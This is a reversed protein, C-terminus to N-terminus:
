CPGIGLKGYELKGKSVGILVKAAHELVMNNISKAIRGATRFEEAAESLKRQQTFIHGLMYHGRAEGETFGLSECIQLYRKTCLRSAGLKRRRLLLYALNGVAVSQYEPRRMYTACKLAKRHSRAAEIWNGLAAHLIGANTYAMYKGELDALHAHQEHYALAEEYQMTAETSLELEGMPGVKEVKETKLKKDQDEQLSCAIFNYGMAEGKADGTNQCLECFKKYNEVARTYDQGNDYLVGLCLVASAEQKMQSPDNM